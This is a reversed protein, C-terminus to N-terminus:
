RPTLFDGTSALYRRLNEDQAKIADAMRQAAPQAEARVLAELRVERTAERYKQIPPTDDEATREVKRWAKQLKNAFAERMDPNRRFFRRLSDIRGRMVASFPTERALLTRIEDDGDTPLMGLISKEIISLAGEGGAPIRAAARGSPREGVASAAGADSLLIAIPQGPLIGTGGELVLIEQLV